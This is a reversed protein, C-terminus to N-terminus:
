RVVSEVLELDIRVACRLARSLGGRRTALEICNAAPEGHTTAHCLYAGRGPMTTTRDLAARKPLTAKREAPEGDALALRL